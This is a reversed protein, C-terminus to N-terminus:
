CLWCDAQTLCTLPGSLNVLSVPIVQAKELDWVGSKAYIDNKIIDHIEEATDGTYVIMSGRFLADKGEEPHSEFM